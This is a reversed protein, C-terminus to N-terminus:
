STAQTTRIVMMARSRNLPPPRNSIKMGDAKMMTTTRAIRPVVRMVPNPKKNPPMMRRLRPMAIPIKEPEEARMSTKIKLM